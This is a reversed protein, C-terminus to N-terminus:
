NKVKSQSNEPLDVFVRDGAKLGALVQIQNDIDAGMTVPHFQPQNHADPVM